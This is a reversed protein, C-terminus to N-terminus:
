KRISFSSFSPILSAFNKIKQLFILFKAEKIGENGENRIRIIKDNTKHVLFVIKTLFKGLIM